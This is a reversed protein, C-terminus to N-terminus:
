SDNKGRIKRYHKAEADRHREKECEKRTCINRIRNPSKDWFWNDCIQCNKMRLMMELHQEELWKKLRLEMETKVLEFIDNM